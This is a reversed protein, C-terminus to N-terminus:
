RHEILENLPVFMRGEEALIRVRKRLFTTLEINEQLVQMLDHGTMVFFRAPSRRMTVRCEDTVDNISLLVGRTISSTREIKTGFVSLPQNDVVANLVV